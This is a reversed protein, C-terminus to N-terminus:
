RHARDTRQTVHATDQAVVLSCLRLDHCLLTELHNQHTPTQGLPVSCLVRWYAPPCLVASM